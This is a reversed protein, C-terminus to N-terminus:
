RLSWEQSGDSAPKGSAEEGGGGGGGGGGRARRSTPTVVTITVTRVCGFTETWHKRSLSRPAFEPPALPRLFSSGRGSSRRSGCGTRVATRAPVPVPGHTAAGRPRVRCPAGHTEPAPTLCAPPSSRTRPRASARRTHGDRQAGGAVRSRGMELQGAGAPGGTRV